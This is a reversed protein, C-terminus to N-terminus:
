YNQPTLRHLSDPQGKKLSQINVTTKIFVELNIIERLNETPGVSLLFVSTDYMM